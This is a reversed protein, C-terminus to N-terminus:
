NSIDALHSSTLLRRGECWSQIIVENKMDEKSLYFRAFLSNPNAPMFNEDGNYCHMLAGKAPLPLKTEGAGDHDKNKLHEIFGWPVHCPRTPFIVV